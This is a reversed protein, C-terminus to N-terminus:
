AFVSSFEDVSIHGDGDIDMTTIETSLDDLQLQRLQDKPINTLLFEFFEQTPVLGKGLKDFQTFTQKAIKRRLSPELTM